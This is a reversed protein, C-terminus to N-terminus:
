EVGDSQRQISMGTQQEPDINDDKIPGYVKELMDWRAYMYDLRALDRADDVHNGM